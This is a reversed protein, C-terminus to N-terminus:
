LDNGYEEILIEGHCRSPYCWCGLVRGQLESTYQALSPKMGLYIRYNECVEDREGDDPLLFPNGWVTKRDIRTFKDERKAWEILALDTRINATVSYGLEVQKRREVESPTWAPETAIVVASTIAEEEDEEDDMELLEDVAEEVIKGTPQGGSRENAIQWAERVRAPSEILKSLPYLQREPTSRMLPQKDSMDSLGDSINPSLIVEIKAAALKRYVTDRAQAFEVGICDEFSSYGLSRWGERRWLDYILRRASNLHDHISAVAQRAENESMPALQIEAASM